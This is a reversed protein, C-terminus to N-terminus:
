LSAPSAGAVVHNIIIDLTASELANAGGDGSVGRWDTTAVVVLDLSPVVYIFQGGYGWALFAPATPAENVWWLRGYTYSELPDFASRWTYAPATSARIWETPLVQQAGSVGDQLLLQGLRALDRARLDLGAGGNVHGGNSNEWRRGEIGLPGFLVADAYAPLSQGVAEELVVGLLHVAASNYTFTSGPTHVLPQDLLYQIHDFSMIWESYSPGGIEDWEFGSSMTLLNEVTIAAKDPTMVAVAEGLVDGIRTDLALHGQEIAIGTLMGVVSKTVSRVDQLDAETFGRFYAEVALQGNRVVLLSRFRSIADAQRVAEDMADPDLGVAEPTTETWFEALDLPSATFEPAETDCGALVIFALLLTAAARPCATM